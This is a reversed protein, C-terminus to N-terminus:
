SLDFSGYANRKSFFQFHRFNQAELLQFFFITSKPSFSTRSKFNLDEYKEESQLNIFIIKSKIIDNMEM